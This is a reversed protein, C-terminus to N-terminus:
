QVGSAGSRAPAKQGVRTRIVNLFDKLPITEPTPKGVAPKALPSPNVSPQLAIKALGAADRVVPYIGQGMGVPWPYGAGDRGTLFIVMEDNGHFVPFDPVTLTTDNVTGGPLRLSIERAEGKVPDLVRLTPTTYITRHADDWASRRDVYRVHYIAEAKECLQDFTFVAITTAHAQAACFLLASALSFLARKM